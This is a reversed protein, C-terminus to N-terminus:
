ILQNTTPYLLISWVCIQCQELPSYMSMVMWIMCHFSFIWWDNDRRQRAEKRPYNVHDCLVISLIWHPLESALAIESLNHWNNKKSLIWHIWITSPTHTPTHEIRFSTLTSLFYFYVQSCQSGRIKSPSNKSWYFGAIKPKTRIRISWGFMWSGLILWDILWSVNVNMWGQLLFM